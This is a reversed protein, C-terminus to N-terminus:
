DDASRVTHSQLADRLAQFDDPLAASFEMAESSLPHAFALRQAHLAQRRFARLANTVDEDAGPPLRMRGGYVPDGVLGHRVHAMHVRIQHTRGTELWVRIWTHARFREVVRYHTVSPRGSPNISMRKRETPHRAIAADIRGGATLVGNCIASYEREIRREGLERVLHTHAPLTRAILLLGSTDKDLRHVIGSRPLESSNRIAFFSGTKCRGTRIAPARICSWGPPNTSSM